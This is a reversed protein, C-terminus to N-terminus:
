QTSSCNFWHFSDFRHAALPLPLSAFSTVAKSSVVCVSVFPKFRHAATPSHAHLTPNRQNAVSAVAPVGSGVGATELYSDTARKREGSLARNHQNAGRVFRKGNTDTLTRKNRRMWATSTEWQEGRGPVAAAAGAPESLNSIRILRISRLSCVRAPVTEIRKM